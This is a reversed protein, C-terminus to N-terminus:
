DLSREPVFRTSLGEARLEVKSKQGGSLDSLWDDKSELLEAMVVDVPM